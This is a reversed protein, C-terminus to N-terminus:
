EFRELLCLEELNCLQVPHLCSQLNTALTVVHKVQQDMAFIQVVQMQIVVEIQLRNFCERRLLAFFRSKSIREM